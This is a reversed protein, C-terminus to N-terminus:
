EVRTNFFVVLRSLNRSLSVLSDSTTNQIHVLIKICFAKQNTNIIFLLESFQVSDTIKFYYLLAGFDSKAFYLITHSGDLM